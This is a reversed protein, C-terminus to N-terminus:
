RYTGKISGWTRVETRVPGSCGVDLAGILGCSPANAATCPSVAFLHFDLGFIDCYFPDSSINNNVGTADPMGNYNAGTNGWVDCCTLSVVSGDAAVSVGNGVPSHSVIDRKLTVRSPGVAYVGGGDGAGSNLAITNSTLAINSSNALVGGGNTGAFNRIILNGTV